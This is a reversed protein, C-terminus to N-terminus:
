NTFLIVNVKPEVSRSLDWLEQFRNTEIYIFYPCLWRIEDFYALRDFRARCPKEIIARNEM